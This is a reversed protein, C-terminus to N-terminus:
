RFVKEAIDRGGKKRGELLCASVGVDVVLLTAIVELKM